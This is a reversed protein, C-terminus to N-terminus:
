KLQYDISNNEFDLMIAGLLEKGTRSSKFTYASKNTFTARTKKLVWEAIYGGSHKNKFRVLTKAMHSKPNDEWLEYTSQWDVPLPNKFVGDKDIYPTLKKKRICLVGMSAPMAFDLDNELILARVGFNFADVVKSYLSAKVYYKSDKHLKGRSKGERVERFHKNAYYTYFEKTAVHTAYKETQKGRTGRM